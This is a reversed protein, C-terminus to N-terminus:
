EAEREYRYGLGRVGVIRPANGRRARRRIRALLKMVAQESLEAAECLADMGVVRGQAMWVTAIVAREEPSTIEGAAQPKVAPSIM